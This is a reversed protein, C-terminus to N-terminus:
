YFEKLDDLRLLMPSYGAAADTDIGIWSDTKVARRHHEAGFFQTPTHGFVVTADSFYRTDPAPRALLLEGPPYDSLPREPRFNELGSHVLLFNRGKVELTEYLPAERLYELIGEVLEPTEKLMRRFGSITPIGGNELWNEVLLLKETTLSDLNEENAEDFLFDCALLLAEHNGLILQVNPQETLWLLLQAGHPGRDIVDGLIFLFDADGFGARDLLQQFKVPDCGHLDSSVYIM